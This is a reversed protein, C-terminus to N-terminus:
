AAAIKIEKSKKPEKKPLSIKLLGDKYEARVMSEEVFAPLAFARSFNGYAREIRHYSENKTEKEFRREGKLLLTNDELKIEIDKAEMGPLEAKIIVETDTEFVDVFPSWNDHMTDLDRFPNWKILTM